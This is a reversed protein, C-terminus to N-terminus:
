LMTTTIKLKAAAQYGPIPKLPDGPQKGRVYTNLAYQVASLKLEQSYSNQHLLHGELDSEDDNHM